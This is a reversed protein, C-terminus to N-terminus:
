RRVPRPENALESEDLLEPQFPLALVFNVLDWIKGPDLKPYHAPMSTGNIGKAIRRYLDVPRGGGKYVAVTLDAPRSPAGWADLGRDWLARTREDFEAIRRARTEPDDRLVIENFLKRDVYDAGDGKGRPGHCGACELYDKTKGMYLDRGRRVGEPTPPTRPTPPEVTEREATRWRDFLNAVVDRVVRDNLVDPDDSDALAGEEILALETQGRLSLFITYDVVQEIEEESMLAKFGPMATSPLGDQVVRRLDDRSPPAGAPTSTFKYVGPRFDRPPPYTFAATPGDGGGSVGHCNLCDRRYVAYGGARPLKRFGEATRVGNGLLGGLLGTEDRSLPAEAPVHIERPNPGYLRALVDRVRQRIRPKDALDAKGAVAATMSPREEYVPPVSPDSKSCGAALALLTGFGLVARRRAIM